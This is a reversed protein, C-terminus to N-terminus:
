QLFLFIIDEYQEIIFRKMKVLCFIIEEHKDVTLSRRRQNYQIWALAYLHCYFIIDNDNGIILAKMQDFSNRMFEIYILCIFHKTNKKCEDDTPLCDRAEDYRRLKILICIKIIPVSFIDLLENDLPIESLLNSAESYNRELYCIRAEYYQKEFAFFSQDMPFDNETLLKKFEDLVAKAERCNRERLHQDVSQCFFFYRDELCLDDNDNSMQFKKLVEQRKIHLVKMTQIKDELLSRPPKISLDRRIKWEFVAAENQYKNLENEFEKEFSNFKIVDEDTIIKQSTYVNYRELAKLFHFPKKDDRYCQILSNIEKELFLYFTKMDGRRFAMEVILNYENEIGTGKEFQVANFLKLFHIYWLNKKDVNRLDQSGNAIQLLLEQLINHVLNRDLHLENADLFIRIVKQVLTHIFLRDGITQVLSYECLNDIIENLEFEDEAINKNYLFTEQRICSNDILSMMALVQLTKPSAKVKGLAVSWVTLLTRDYDSYTKKPDLIPKKCEKFSKVYAMIPTNHKNIYAVAQQLCLPFANLESSLKEIEEDSAQLINMRLFAKSEENTFHPFNISYIKSSAFINCADSLQTTILFKSSTSANRLLIKLNKLDSEFVDDVVYLVKKCHTLKSIRQSLQLVSFENQQNVPTTSTTLGGVIEELSTQINSAVLWFIIDFEHKYNQVFKAVTQTKGSGGMASVIVASSENLM